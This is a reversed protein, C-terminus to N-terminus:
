PLSATLHPSTVRLWPRSGEVSPPFPAEASPFFRLDPFPTSQESGRWAGGRDDLDAEQSVLEVPEVQLQLLVSLLAVHLPRDMDDDQLDFM